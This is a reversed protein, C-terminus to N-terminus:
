WQYKSVFCMNSMIGTIKTIFLDSHWYFNLEKFAMCAHIYVCEVTISEVHVTYNLFTNIVFADHHMCINAASTVM